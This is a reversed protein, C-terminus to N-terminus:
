RRHSRQPILPAQGQMQADTRGQKAAERVEKACKRMSLLSRLADDALLEGFFPEAM